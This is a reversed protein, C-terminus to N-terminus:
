YKESLSVRTSKLNGGIPPNLKEVSVEISDIEPFMSRISSRIRGIVHELLNSPTDMETQILSYLKEYDITGELKDESVAQEFNGTVALNVIFTNGKEREEDYVGHYAYFELDNLEIKIM